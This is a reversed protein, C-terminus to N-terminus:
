ELLSEVSDTYAEVWKSFSLENEWDAMKTAKASGWDLVRQHLMHVKIRKKISETEKLNSCYVDLLHKSIERENNDLYYTIMKILDTVPDAFYANTFDFVGSIQWSDDESHVLFNGPKFDGMIFTPSFFNTFDEKSEDLLTEAWRIDEATIESYKKADELWYMIRKFLWQYYSDKFRDIEFTEPNLEGFDEVRWSHFSSLTKAISEAIKIKDEFRLNTKLHESNIHEGQLLPMISYSWGFIEESDDIIYPIPVEVKTRKNINEIFYKEEVLQGTYLPNGKLVFNGETSSVFMTQGMAGFATKNSSILKGLHHKDLMSQLQDNKITGLKNSAFIIKVTM